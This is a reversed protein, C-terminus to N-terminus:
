KLLPELYPALDPCNKQLQAMVQANRAPASTRGITIWKKALADNAPARQEFIDSLLAADEVPIDAVVAEGLCKQTRDRDREPIQSTKLFAGISIELDAALREKATTAWAPAIMAPALTCALLAAGLLAPRISTALSM